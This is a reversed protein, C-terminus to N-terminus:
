QWFRIYDVQTTYSAADNNNVALNCVLYLPVKPVSGAVNETAVAVGDCYWVLKTATWKLGYTRWDTTIADVNTGHVTAGSGYNSVLYHAGDGFDEFIDVEPPWEYTSSIMWFAPWSIAGATLKIRAEAYGYLPNFSPNSQIMGSTYPYGAHAGDKTATLTLISNAVSLGSIDYYELETGPNNSHKNGDGVADNPYWAQWTPGAGFKVLGNAADVVNVSSAEFEDRFVLNWVGAAQGVPDPNTTGGGTVSPLTASQLRRTFGSM